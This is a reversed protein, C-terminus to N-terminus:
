KGCLEGGNDTSLVKIKKGVQNEVLSNFEKFKSFVELKQNLFYIWVMRSFENILSVYYHSGGLSPVHVLGFVDIHVLGIIRKERTM